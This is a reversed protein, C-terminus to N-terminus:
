RRREGNKRRVGGRRRKNGQDKTSYSSSDVATKAADVENAVNCDFRLLRKISYDILNEDSYMVGEDAM